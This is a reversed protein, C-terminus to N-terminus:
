LGVLDNLYLICSVNPGVLGMPDLLFFCAHVCARVCACVYMCVHPATNKSYVCDIDVNHIHMMMM